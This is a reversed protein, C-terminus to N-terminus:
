KLAFHYHYMVLLSCLLHSLMLSSSSKTNEVCPALVRPFEERITDTSDCSLTEEIRSALHFYNVALLGLLNHKLNTVVFVLQTTSRGKFSLHCNFQGLVQLPHPFLAVFYGILHRTQGAAAM